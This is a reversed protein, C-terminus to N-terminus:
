RSWQIKPIICSNFLNTFTIKSQRFFNWFFFLFIVGCDNIIVIVMRVDNTSPTVIAPFGLELTRDLIIYINTFAPLAAHLFRNLQQNARIYSNM